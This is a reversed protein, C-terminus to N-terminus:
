EGLYRPLLVQNQGRSPAPLPGCIMCVGNPSPGFMTDKALPGWLPDDAPDNLAFMTWFM